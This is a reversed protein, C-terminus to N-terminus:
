ADPNTDTEFYAQPIGGLLLEAARTETQNSGYEAIAELGPLLLDLQMRTLVVRIEFVEQPHGAPFVPTAGRAPPVEAPLDSEDMYSILLMGRLHDIAHDAEPTGFMRRVYGIQADLEVDPDLRSNESQCALAEELITLNYAERIEDATLGENDISTQPTATREVVEPLESEGVFQSALRRVADVLADIEGTASPDVEHVARMASRLSFTRGRDFPHADVVRQATALIERNYEDRTFM